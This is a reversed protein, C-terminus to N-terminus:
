VLMLGTRLSTSAEDYMLLECGSGLIAPILM